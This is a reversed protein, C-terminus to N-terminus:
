GAGDAGGVGDDGGGHARECFAAADGGGDCTGSPDDVGDAADDVVVDVEEGFAAVGAEAFFDEVDFVEAVAEEAIKLLVALVM